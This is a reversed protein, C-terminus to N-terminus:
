SKKLHKAAIGEIEQFTQQLNDNIIVYDFDKSQEIEMKARALRIQIQEETETSRGRLRQELVNESIPALFILLTNEPYARKLAFAGKVDIDFLLIYGAELKKDIESKLTGYYNGFIEEYEALEDNKIKNEFEERTLYYYDVGFTENPRKARTTASISFELNPYLSRLHKSVTTKGGGSPSSLVILNKYNESM